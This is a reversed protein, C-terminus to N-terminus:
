VGMIKGAIERIKSYIRHVLGKPQKKYFPTYGLAKSIIAMDRLQAKILIKGTRDYDAVRDYVDSGAGRAVQYSTLFDRYVQKPVIRALTRKGVEIDNTVRDSISKRSLDKTPKKSKWEMTALEFQKPTLKKTTFSKPKDDWRSKTKKYLKERIDRKQEVSLKKNKILKKYAKVAGDRRKKWDKNEKKVRADSKKVKQVEAPKKDKWNRYRKNYEKVDVSEKKYFDKPLKNIIEANTQMPVGWLGHAYLDNDKDAGLHLKLVKATKPDLSEFHDLFNQRAVVFDTTVAIQEAPNLASGEIFQELNMKEGEEGQKVDSVNHYSFSDIEDFEKFLNYAGAITTKDVKKDFAERADKLEVQHQKEILSLEEEFEGEEVPKFQEEYISKKNELDEIEKKMEAREKKGSEKRKEASEKIDKRKEKIKDNFVTLGDLFVQKSEEDMGYERRIELSNKKADYKDNIRNVKGEFAETDKKIKGEKTLTVYGERPLKGDESPDISPYLDSKKLNLDKYIKDYDGNNRLSSELYKSMIKKKYMPLQIRTAMQKGLEAVVYGAIYSALHKSLDPPNSPNFKLEYNNVGDFVARMAEQKMDQYLDRNFGYREVIRHILGKNESLIKEWEKPSAIYRRELVSEEKGGRMRKRWENKWKGNLMVKLNSPYIQKGGVYKNYVQTATKNNKVTENIKEKWEEKTNATKKKAKQQSKLEDIKEQAVRDKQSRTHEKVKVLKGKSSRKVHTKVTGKSKKGVAKIILEQKM